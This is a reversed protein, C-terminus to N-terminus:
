IRRVYVTRAVEIGLASPARARIIIIGYKSPTNHSLLHVVRYPMLVSFSHAPILQTVHVHQRTDM